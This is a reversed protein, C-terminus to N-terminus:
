QYGVLEVYANGIFTGDDYVHCRGEWYTVGTSKTTSLEQNPIVPKIHLTKNYMPILIEWEAPYQIGSEPSKWLTLVKINFDKSSLHTKNGSPDVYSGSSFQNPNNQKDRLQYVMIDEGNELQIAFWDWGQTAQALKSSTFERDMWVSATTVKHESDKLKLIGDGVLRTYSYYYSAEGPERGKKSYGDEGQLILPKQPAVTLDLLISDTEVHIHIDSGKMRTEWTSNWVHMTGEKAGAINFSERNTKEFHYFTKNLDDTLAFHALHISPSHWESKSTQGPDIGVRFFTLQFGFKRQASTELHGTYYWWETEYQSHSGHDHPFSFKKGPVVMDFSYAPSVFITILLFTVIRVSNM